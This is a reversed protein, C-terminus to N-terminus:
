RHIVVGLGEGVGRIKGEVVKEPLSLDSCIEDFCHMGDLFNVLQMGVERERDSVLDDMDKLNQNRTISPAKHHHQTNALHPNLSTTSAISPRHISFSPHQAHSHLNSISPRHINGRITATDSDRLNSTSPAASTQLSTPPAPPMAISTAYAYKHVRYLFGKIVGFTIFRRIDIGSLLDLNDLVWSKLTLGQRLSTYLTILTEHEIHWEGDEDEDQQDEGDFGSIHIASSASESRQSASSSISSRGERSRESESRVVTSKSAASGVRMKPTRVYRMCEEKVDDDLVFGGIEATPAYIASFSFIDLLVLCGYYVLHQVARRTLSLDTDALQAIRSISNVGNIYPLIRNLTLDSSIPSQLGALSMTLLPVQHAHVPPPPPRTPFLKLNITNSDDIPIMCESYNNLDELVMECLAYVKSGSGLGFGSGGVSDDLGGVGIGLGVYEDDWVGDEEKSLFGGQEELGRLLKGLKRVVQGYCAWDVETESIVIAFNFIFENREYKKEEKICVPFGIIRHHNVCCTILRDCFQQTPILYQTVSSFPFLPTPLASPSTSPTIAGAPVQHLVHSGKEHHFRTYFIAKIARTPM